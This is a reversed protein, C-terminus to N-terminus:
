SINKVSQEIAHLFSKASSRASLLLFSDGGERLLITGCHEMVTRAVDHTNFMDPHLDIPCIRELAARSTPGSLRLYCWNDSQDTIYGTNGLQNQFDQETTGDLFLAFLQEENMAMFYRDVSKALKGPQPWALEYTQEIKKKLAQDEGMPISLSFLRCQAVEELLLDGHRM